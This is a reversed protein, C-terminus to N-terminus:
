WLRKSYLLLAALIVAHILRNVWRRRKSLKTM